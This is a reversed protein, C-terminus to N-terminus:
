SLVVWVLDDMVFVMGGIERIIDLVPTLLGDSSCSIVQYLRQGHSQVATGHSGVLWV